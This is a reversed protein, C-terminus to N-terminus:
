TSFRRFSRRLDGRLDDHAEDLSTWNDSDEWYTRSLERLACALCHEVNCSDHEQELWKVFKPAHLFAQFISNAYCGNEIYPLGSSEVEDAPQGQSPSSLDPTQYRKLLACFKM